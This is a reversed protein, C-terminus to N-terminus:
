IPTRFVSRNHSAFLCVSCGGQLLSDDCLGANERQGTTNRAFMEAPKESTPSEIVSVLLFSWLHVCNEAWPERELDGDIQWEHWLGNV